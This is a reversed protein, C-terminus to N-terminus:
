ATLCCTHWQPAYASDLPQPSLLVARLVAPMHTCTTTSRVICWMRVASSARRCPAAACREMVGSSMAACRAVAPPPGASRTSPEVAHATAATASRTDPSSRLVACASPSRCPWRSACTSPHTRQV